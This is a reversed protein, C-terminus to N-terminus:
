GNPTVAARAFLYQLASSVRNIQCKDSAVHTMGIRPILDCPQREAMTYQADDWQIICMLRLGNCHKFSFVNGFRTLYRFGKVHCKYCQRTGSNRVASTGKRMIGRSELTLGKGTKM